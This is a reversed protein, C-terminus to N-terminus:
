FKLKLAFQIIRPNGSTATILGFAPGAAVDSVPQAFRPTNTFNFFETRFDLSTRESLLFSRQIGLDLNRQSPGRLIGVGCNGFGTSNPDNNFQPPGAFAAPNFYGNLRSSLSGSSAPNAGTCEARAFGVLNGYVSGATSDIVTIPLGSQLVMVGSVQWQSFVPRLLAPAFKPQPIQYLFSTIFRHKRDFDSLGHSSRPDTQDNGLFDLDLSDLGGTGSTNDLAKSYTYSTLFELGHSARKTLSTQLSNYNANFTTQCIYSGGAVGQFPVRQAVNESTTTTEGNVPHQPTALLAQNFEVCGTLHTTKSGVYGLQWLFDRAFETQVDLNYQQTYPSRISRSIAALFLASEPTRPIFIPYASNPPLPPTFPQQFTAAANLSGLLSQTVAFPPQGVNQLVLEGSLREYYIGYGGRLVMPRGTPLRLAFGLRPGLDKYDSNWFGSNATKTLGAPVPGAFNGPLLFGTFSGGAGVQPTALSPDFNSLHGNIETPPGFYEYRLGANVTLRSTVRFDDQIFGAFDTYRQDKRFLGSAGVSELLNSQGSGNQAASEGLLFDPFSQFLLFGATTFPVNLELQHRKAEGGMRLSHRGRILSVTDQWVFTNTNQFYFPQGSPGITFLNQVVIGPIEPLGSPTGMGVDAASIPDVGSQKGNFRMYGFRAVNTLNPSFTHTDSLVFMHNREPQQTGWGPVTAAFPTFPESTTESSYFFRGALQNRESLYHDLNVTFQDQRYTGPFSYTSQGIGTPLITQPNPIAFSGDPLKANLLALAVPNINSGDSAVAVGGFAGSQGGFLAGLTAASRDNTLAPLFTSQLAGPAQGNKQLSGQYSAFLFTKQKVIPGGITGGFQNQRLVPRPQGNRNLFFDNADLADNRFFEWADGHWQSTGSKSIIDVNAGASRGYGADYMGTQVKFEAITDPAPIAIGVEPDFGSASNESVNNADIGDFQFNNATTKAGNASVNQTNRGFQSADPIGVVVGPSLALIQSFNRNALPLGVITTGDTARGLTSSQTQILDTSAEVLIATSSSGLKLRFEVTTVESAIVRISRATQQGFGSAVVEVSYLGAPLLTFRFLGDAATVATRHLPTGENILSLQANPVVAGTPDLVTGAVAGTGPAQSKAPVAWGLSGLVSILAVAFIREVVRVAFFLRDKRHTLFGSGSCNLYIRKRVLM